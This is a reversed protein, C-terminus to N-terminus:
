IEIDTIVISATEIRARRPQYNCGESVLVRFDVVFQGPSEEQGKEKSSRTNVQENM